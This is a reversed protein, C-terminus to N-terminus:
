TETLFDQLEPEIQILPPLRPHILQAELLTFNRFHIRVNRKQIHFWSLRILVFVNM